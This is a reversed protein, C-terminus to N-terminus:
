LEQLTEQISRVIRHKTDNCHLEKSETPRTYIILMIIWDIPPIEEICQRYYLINYIPQHFKFAQPSAVNM